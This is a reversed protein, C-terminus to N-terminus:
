RLHAGLEVGLGVMWWEELASGLAGSRATAWHARALVDAYAREGAAFRAGAEFSLTPLVLPGGYYDQLDLRGFGLGADVGVPTAPDQRVIGMIGAHTFAASSPETAGEDLGQQTPGVTTAGWLSLGLRAGAASRSRAFADYRGTVVGSFGGQMWPGSLRGIHYGIAVDNGFAPPDDPEPAVDRGPGPSPAPPPPPLPPAPAALAATLLLAIV